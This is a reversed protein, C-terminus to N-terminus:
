DEEGIFLIADKYGECLDCVSENKCAYIEQQIRLKIREREFNKGAIIGVDFGKSYENV